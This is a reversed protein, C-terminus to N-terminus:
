RREEILREYLAIYQAVVSSISFEAEIRARAAAGRARLSEPPADIAEILAGALAGSNHPPVVWGSEGVIAAADGVDTTVCPVGTAMAEGIVNPFGEVSSSLCFIDFACMLEAVDHRQGTAIVRGLRPDPLDINRGVAMLVVDPRGEGVTKYASFLNPLDKQPNARGVFGIVKDNESLGLQTRILSRNNKSPKWVSTDFGNPLFCGVSRKYGADGYQYQSRRSNYIIADAKYSFLAGLKNLARTSRSIGETGDLSIRVNFVLSARSSRSFFGLFAAINGHTMWGQIIQPPHDRLAKRLAWFARLSPWGQKMNLCVLPIGAQELLPGYHGPGTLSIVKNRFPGELGNTLLTYLAREAGGVDLGTIIHTLKPATVRMM